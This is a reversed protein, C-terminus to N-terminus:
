LGFGTLAFFDAFTWFGTAALASDWGAWFYNKVKIFYFYSCRKVLHLKKNVNALIITINIKFNQFGFFTKKFIKCIQAIFITKYNSTLM